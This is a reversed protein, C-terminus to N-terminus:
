DRYPLQRDKRQERQWAVPDNIRTHLGGKTHWETLIDFVSETHANGSVPMYSSMNDSVHSPKQEKDNSYPVPKKKDKDKEKSM